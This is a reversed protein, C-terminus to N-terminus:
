KARNQILVTVYDSLGRHGAMAAQVKLERAIKPALFLAVKIKKTDM